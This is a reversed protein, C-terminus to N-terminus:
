KALPTLRPSWQVVSLSVTGTPRAAPVDIPVTDRRGTIKVTWEGVAKTANESPPIDDRAAEPSDGQATTAPPVATVPVDVRIDQGCTGSKAPARIGSPGTVEVTVTYPSASAPNSCSVVVFASTVNQSEVDFTVADSTMDPVDQSGLGETATTFEVNYIGTPSSSTANSTSLDGRLYLATGASGLLLFGVLLLGVDALILKM